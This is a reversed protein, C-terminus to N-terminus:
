RIEGGSKSNHKLFWMEKNSGGFTGEIRGAEEKDQPLGGEIGHIAKFIKSQYREM